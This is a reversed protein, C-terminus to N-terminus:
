RRAWQGTRRLYAACRPGGVEVDVDFFVLNGAKYAFHALSKGRPIKPAQAPQVAPVAPMRQGGAAGTTAATAAAAGNDSPALIQAGGYEAALASNMADDAAAEDLDIEPPADDDDDDSSSSDPPGLDRQALAPVDELEEDSLLDRADDGAGLDEDSDAAVAGWGDASPSAAGDLPSGAASAMRSRAPRNWRATHSGQCKSCM